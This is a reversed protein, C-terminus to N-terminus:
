FLPETRYQRYPPAEKNETTGGICVMMHWRQLTLHIRISKILRREAYRESDCSPLSKEDYGKNM